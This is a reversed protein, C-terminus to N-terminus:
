ALRLTAVCTASGETTAFDVTGTAGQQEVTITGEIDKPLWYGVFGNTGTTTAEDVLVKGAEDTITVEVPQRALEGRCTALSHFFCEHTQDRYPAISVYYSDAPLALRTEKAGKTIVLESGRVAAGYPLPRARDSADIAQVLEKANKGPFGLDAAIATVEAASAAIGTTAVTAPTEPTASPQSGSCGAVALLAAAAAALITKRM